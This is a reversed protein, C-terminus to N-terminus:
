LIEISNNNKPIISINEILGDSYKVVKLTGEETGTLRYRNDDIFIVITDVEKPTEDREIKFKM